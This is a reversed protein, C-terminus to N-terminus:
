LIRNGLASTVIGLGLEVTEEGLGDDMQFTYWGCAETHKQGDSAKPVALMIM